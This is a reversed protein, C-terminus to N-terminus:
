QSTSESPIDINKEIENMLRQMSPNSMVKDVNPNKGIRTPDMSMIDQLLNENMLLNMLQPDKTIEEIITMVKPNALLGQYFNGSQEPSLGLGSLAPMSNPSITPIQGAAPLSPTGSSINTVNMAPIELQGLATTQIQYHNNKIGVLRGKLVTGDKLVITQLPTTEESYALSSLLLAFIFIISLNRM